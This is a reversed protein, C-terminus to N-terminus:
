NIVPIVKGKGKVRMCYYANNVFRFSFHWIQHTPRDKHRDTQPSYWPSIWQIYLFEIHCAKVSFQPVIGIKLLM